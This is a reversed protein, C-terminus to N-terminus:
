EVKLFFKLASYRKIKRDNSVMQFIQNKSGITIMKSRARTVATYFLNRYCLKPPVDIVPMIVASFESGQSKHVTMAYALELESLNTASYTTIRGDFDIKLTGSARNIELLIGTDGNFIGEGDETRGAHLKRTWPISYNNKIQMVKDGERFVKSKLKIENKGKKPPNVAAQLMRNLNVTGADGKKSPCLIEIDTVPNYGYAKPLRDRYLSVIDNVTTYANQREMHFFDNDVANLEPMEGKVIRHANTVILSKMAQRFVEDLRVVPLLESEILDHLVNGAGVPPLQDADGVMILRCGIPLASLLASFLVIDVMSLEDVIVVDADIPDRADKGFHMKGGTGREAELLRHITKAEKGTIESMRQAARGTPACLVVSLGDREFLSLIGNVTTTKGTGPGGTLILVGKEVATVIAKRQLAEYKIGNIRELSDIENSLTERGAPPFTIMMKIRQAASYEAEYIYPLFLFETKDITAVYLQKESTLTDITIDITDKDTGLLDACPMLIKERPLCTHGNGLNHTIVHLIGAKIRYSPDPKTEMLSAIRDVREFDIGIEPVCLLFPNESIRKVSYAGFTKYVSLCESPTLGFAELKVIIERVANQESFERSITDAKDRSIGKIKALEEPHNEIVDFSREGFAEIIKTALGPGIGRVTGSSLYKLMQAATAPMSRECVEARFQRGFNQHTDWHGLFHVEEGASLEPLVGVVTILEGDETSVDLVTFGTESNRFVIEEVTGYLEENEENLYEAM